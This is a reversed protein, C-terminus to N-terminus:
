QPHGRNAHDKIIAFIEDAEGILGEAEHFCREAEATRGQSRHWHGDKDLRAARQRLEEQENYLNTCDDCETWPNPM